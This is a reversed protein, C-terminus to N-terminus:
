PRPVLALDDRKVGVWRDTKRRFWLRTTAEDRPGRGDFCVRMPGVVAIKGALSSAPGVVTANDGVHFAHPQKTPKASM